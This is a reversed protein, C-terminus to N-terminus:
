NARKALKKINIIEEIKEEIMEIELIENKTIEKEIMIDHNKIDEIILLDIEIIIDEM